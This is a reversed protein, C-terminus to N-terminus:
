KIKETITKQIEEKLVEIIEDQKIVKIQKGKKFLIASDKGGAIGIDAHSAEQLGNVPCGMIAVEIDEHINNLYKEIENVIPLMDYQIRGCTPCAILNPVKDFLGFNNLLQKAVILEDEPPGSVSIRITDGIGMHILTGLAASSKISSSLMTGAETVGLHLPYNFTNSALEYAEITLRVDSSKFSLCIDHFDLDELIQVHRKASEIMAKACPKGYKKLLDKELSGSNIGIRIPINNEKCKFVVSEVAEKSEINGPNIRIKDIGSEIAKLALKHNFHIDAVLPIHVYKKIEKIAKADEEDLIALRVIECGNKELRLIQDVTNKIDKTRTNTMSQIVIRNQNGIIVNGVKIARTNERKM